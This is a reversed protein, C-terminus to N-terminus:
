LEKISYVLKESAFSKHFMLTIYMEYGHDNQVVTANRFFYRGRAFLIMAPEEFKLEWVGHKEGENNTRSIEGDPGGAFTYTSAARRNDGDIFTTKIESGFKLIPSPM